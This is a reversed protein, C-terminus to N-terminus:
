PHSHYIKSVIRWSGDIKYLLMYDTYVHVGDRIIEIRVTAANGEIDVLPIEYEVEMDFAGPNERLKEVRPNVFDELSTETVASGDLVLMRFGADFGTRVADWSPSIHIGRIYANRIIDKIKEEEM